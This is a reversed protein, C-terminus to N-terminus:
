AFAVRHETSDTHDPDFDLQKRPKHHNWQLISATAQKPKSLMSWFIVKELYKKPAKLCRIAIQLARVFDKDQDSAKTRTTLIRVIDDHNYNKEKICNHLIESEAEALKKETEYRYISVLLLLLKRM